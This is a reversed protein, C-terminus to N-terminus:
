SKSKPYPVPLIHKEARRSYNDGYFARYQDFNLKCDRGLLEMEVGFVEAMVGMPEMGCRQYFAKRHQRLKQDPGEAFPNEIEVFVGKGSYRNLLAAMAGSGVGQGRRARVVALYDLLILSGSNVTTAFGLFKGAQCIRWVDSKGMTRCKRIVSFPKREAAPFATHYLCFIQVWHLPATPPLLQINDM